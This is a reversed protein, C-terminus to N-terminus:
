EVVENIEEDELKAEKEDASPEEEKKLPAEEVMEEVENMGEPIAIAREPHTASALASSSVFEISGEENLPVLYSPSDVVKDGVKIHGHVVFQRAQNPTRALKKQYVINSLRRELMNRLKIDLVEDLSTAEQNLIGLGKLKEVFHKAGESEKTESSKNLEKALKKLKSLYLEIKRIEKKNKISYDEVLKEEEVITNKSWRKKHSVYKKRQKIAIGM